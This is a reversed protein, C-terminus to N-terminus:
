QASSGTLPLCSLRVVRSWVRLGAGEAILFSGNNAVANRNVSFPPTVNPISQSPLLEVPTEEGTFWDVWLVRRDFTAFVGFRENPSALLFGPVSFSEGNSRVVQTEGASCDNFGPGFGTSCGSEAHFLVTGPDTVQAGYLHQARLPPAEALDPRDGFLTVGADKKWRYIRTDQNTAPRFYSFYLVSGDHSTALDYQYQAFVPAAAAFAVLIFVHRM